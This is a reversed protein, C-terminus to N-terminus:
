FKGALVKYLRSGIELGKEIFDPGYTKGTATRFTGKIKKIGSIGHEYRDLLVKIPAKRRALMAWVTDTFNDPGWRFKDADYLADSLLQMSPKRLPTSPQFAEHNRIAQVIGGREEDNLDFGSLIRDAEDAGRQAHDSEERKIDHLLGAVQTLVVLREAGAGRDTGARECFVIAGAELAVKRAHSLGHGLRDGYAEVIGLGSQVTPHNELFYRSQDIETTKDSYFRPPEIESAIRESIKKAKLYEGKLVGSGGEL